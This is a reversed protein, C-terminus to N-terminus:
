IFDEPYSEVAELEITEAYHNIYVSKDTEGVIKFSKGFFDFRFEDDSYWGEVAIQVTDGIGVKRGNQITVM